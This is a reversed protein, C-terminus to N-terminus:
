ADGKEIWREVMEAVEESLREATTHENSVVEDALAIARGIGVELEREDRKLFAEYMTPDDSRGREKLLAFRRKRSAHVALLLVDASRRFVEVEALSRIGDVVVKDTKLERITKVCLEAVAAEGNRRRLDRMVEGTNTENPVLGRRKTEERIVDGMVVRGWGMGVLAQAATSKGAGPMGTVAVLKLECGAVYGSKILSNSEGHVPLLFL